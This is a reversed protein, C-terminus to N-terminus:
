FAAVAAARAREAEERRFRRWGRALLVLVAVRFLIDVALAEPRPPGLPDDGLDPSFIPYGLWREAAAWALAPLYLLTVVGELCGLSLAPLRGPRAVLWAALGCALAIWPGAHGAHRYRPDIIWAVVLWVEAAAAVVAAPWFPRSRTFEPRV